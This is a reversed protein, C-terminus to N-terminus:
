LSLRHGNFQLGVKVVVVVVVQFDAFIFRLTPDSDADLFNDILTASPVTMVM